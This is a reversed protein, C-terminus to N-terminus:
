LRSRRDILKLWQKDLEQLIDKNSAERTSAKVLAIVDFPQGLEDIAQRRLRFSERVLRKIRNRQVALKLSKKAAILGLRSENRASRASLLTCYKGGQKCDVNDFVFQFDEPRLLRHNKPFNFQHLKHFVSRVGSLM